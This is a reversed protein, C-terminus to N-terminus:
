SVPAGSAVGDEDRAFFYERVDRALAGGPATWEWAGSPGIRLDKLPDYAHRFLIDNRGRYNRKAMHGHWLHYVDGSLYQLPSLAGAAAARAAWARIDRKHAETNNRGSWFEDLRSLAAFVHLADGGGLVNRDYHGCREIVARPAAWAMGYCNYEHMAAYYHPTGRLAAAKALSEENKDFSGTQVAKAVAMGALLPVARACDDRTVTEPELDAPMHLAREFPQLVGGHAELQRIAGPTWDPDSFVVDCDVWAVYHVHAPLAAIGINLLREKQWVGDEGTLRILVEADDADLQEAGPAALEVALLPAGLLRRFAKFNRRRREYGAPNFYSTVVWLPSDSFPM